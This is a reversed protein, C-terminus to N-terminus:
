FYDNNFHKQVLSRPVVVAEEPQSMAQKFVGPSVQPPNSTSM